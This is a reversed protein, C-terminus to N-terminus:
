SLPLDAERTEDAPDTSWRYVNGAWTKVTRNLIVRAFEIGSGFPDVSLSAQGGATPLGNQLPLRETLSGNTIEYVGTGRQRVIWGTEASGESTFWVDVSLQSGPNSPDSFFKDQLPRGM